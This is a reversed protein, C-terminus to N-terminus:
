ASPQATYTDGCPEECDAEVAAPRLFHLLRNIISQQAPVDQIPYRQEAQKYLEEVMEVGIRDYPNNPAFM